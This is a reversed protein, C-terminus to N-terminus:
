MWTGGLTHGRGGGGGGGGERGGEYWRECIRLVRLQNDVELPRLSNGRLAVVSAIHEHDVM